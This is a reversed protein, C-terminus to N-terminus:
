AAAMMIAIREVPHSRLSTWELLALGTWKQHADCPKAGHLAFANATSVFTFSPVIVEDGPQLRLLLAAMELAHTCSTTLLARGVGLTQELFAHCRKTITGDGSLECTAIAHAIAAFESGIAHPRCFPIFGDNAASAPEHPVAQQALTPQAMRNEGM